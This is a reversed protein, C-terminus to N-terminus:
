GRPPDHGRYFHAGSDGAQAFRTYARGACAPSVPLRTGTAPVDAARMAYGDMSTNDAPPVDITSTVPRALVKGHADLTEVNEHGSLPQAQALLEALADDM